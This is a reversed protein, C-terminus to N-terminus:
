GLAGCTLGANLSEDVARELDAQQWTNWFDSHM